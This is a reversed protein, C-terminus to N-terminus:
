TFSARRTSPLHTLAAAAHLMSENDVLHTCCGLIEAQMEMAAAGFEQWCQIANESDAMLLQSQAAVVDAPDKAATMKQLAAAHRTVARQGAHEQVKRMAEFGRFIVGSSETAVAAQQQVFDAVATWPNLDQSLKGSVSSKKISM